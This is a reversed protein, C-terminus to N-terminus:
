DPKNRQEFQYVLEWFDSEFQSKGEEKPLVKFVARYILTFAIGFAMLSAITFAIRTIGNVQAVQQNFLTEGFKATVINLNLFFNVVAAIVNYGAVLGTSLFLSQRVGPLALLTGLKGQKEVTDAQFVQSAFFQMMPKGILMSGLFVATAVVLATTDKAAFRVGDVQWFVLAGSIITSLAVYSTIVNFKRSIFFTDTLVYIVPILAAIIYATTETSGTVRAFNNLVLIPIVAGMVIDLILKNSGKM